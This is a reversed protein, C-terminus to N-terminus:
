GKQLVEAFPQKAAMLIFLLHTLVKDLLGIWRMGDM